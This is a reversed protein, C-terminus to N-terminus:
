ADVGAIPADAIISERLMAFQEEPADDEGGLETMAIYFLIRRYRAFLPLHEFWREDLDNERAYGGFFSQKFCQAIAAGEAPTKNYLLVWLAHLVPIALDYMFWHRTCVEFDLLTVRAGDVLLNWPHADNHVLGFADPPTPLQELREGVRQWAAVVAEDPCVGAFFAHEDHWDPIHAGGEYHKSLKHVQGLVGGWAAFFPEDWEHPDLTRGPSRLMKSVAYYEGDVEVFEVPAGRTSPVLMPVNVGQASLHSVFAYKDQVAPMKDASTPVFKLLGPAGGADYEYVVGDPAGGREMLKLAAPDLAFLAAGEKLVAERIQM